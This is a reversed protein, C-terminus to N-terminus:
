QEDFYRVVPGQTAGLPIPTVVEFKDPHVQSAFSARPTLEYLNVSVDRFRINEGALQLLQPMNFLSSSEGKRIVIPQDM